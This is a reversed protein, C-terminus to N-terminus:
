EMVIIGDVIPKPQQKCVVQFQTMEGQNVEKNIEKYELGQKHCLYNGLSDDSTKTADAVTFIITCILLGIAIGTMIGLFMGLNLDDSM